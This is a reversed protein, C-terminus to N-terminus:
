KRLALINGGLILLIGIIVVSTIVYDEYVVSIAIAIIPIVVLTYAAKDAGIKSILTLYGAFATISGFLTLYIMSWVYGPSTDFTFPRGLLLAILFMLICGYLMGIANAQIVPINNQSNRASTINGISALVVSSIALITGQITQTDLNMNLLESRFILVTGSLGALAAFVIKTNISRGLFLAGFGINMFIITSFAVALLGSPIYQEAEYVLWYNVGFLFFGQIAIFLHDKLSYKLNLGRIQCYLLMIIAALGFRYVVSVLPDVVGLQFTIVFWTSGWILAPILFLIFNNAKMLETKRMIDM